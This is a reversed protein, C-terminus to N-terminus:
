PAAREAVAAVVGIIVAWAAGYLAKRRWPMTRFVSGNSVLALAMVLGILAVIRDNSM